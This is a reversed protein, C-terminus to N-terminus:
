HMSKTTFTWQSNDGLGVFDTGNLQAGIVVDDGIVVRYTHGYELVNNHPKITLTNGELSLPFYYVFRLRDQGTYGIVDVNKGM